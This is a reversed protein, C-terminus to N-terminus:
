YARVALIGLGTLWFATVELIWFLWQPAHVPRLQFYVFSGAPVGAFATFWAFFTVEPDRWTEAWEAHRYVKKGKAFFGGAESLPAVNPGECPDRTM